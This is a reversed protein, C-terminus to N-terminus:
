LADGEDPPMFGKTRLALAGNRTLVDNPENPTPASSGASSRM